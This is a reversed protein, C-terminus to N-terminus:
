GRNLAITVSPASKALPHAGYRIQLQNLLRSFNSAESGLNARDSRFDALRLGSTGLSKHANHVGVIRYKLGRHGRFFSLIPGGSAGAFAACDHQFAGDRLVTHIHCNFDATPLQGGLRDSSYGVAVVSAGPQLNEDTVSLYAFPERGGHAPSHDLLLIAWDGARSDSENRWPGTWLHIARFSQHSQAQNETGAAPFFVTRIDPDLVGARSGVCHAATLVLREGVLSGTCSELERNSKSLQVVMGIAELDSGTLSVPVRRDPGFVNGFVPVAILLLLSGLSSSARLTNV